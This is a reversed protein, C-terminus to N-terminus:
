DLVTGKSFTKVIPRRKLAIGYPPLELSDGPGVSISMEKTGTPEWGAPLWHDAPRVTYDGPPIGRFRYRGTQDTLGEAVRQGDKFLVIRIDGASAESPGAAGDHDADHFVRGSLRCSQVLAIPVSTEHGAEVQVFIPLNQSPVLGAPLSGLNLDLWYTAPPLAAFDFRGSRASIQQEGDVLVIVEPIRREGRDITGNRNADVFVTGSVGGQVPSWVIPVVDTGSWTLQARWRELELESDIGRLNGDWRISVGRFIQWSARPRVELDRRKSQGSAEADHWRSSASVGLSYSGGRSMWNLNGEVATTRTISEGDPLWEEDRSFRLATRITAVSGGLSMGCSLIGGSSGEIRNYARGTRGSAALTFRGIAHSAVLDINRRETKRLSGHDGEHDFAGGISLEVRPWGAPSGQTGARYWGTLLQPADNADSARGRSVNGSAWLALARRPSYRVYAVGGDRDRIRGEYKESGAYIRARVRLKDADYNALLQGASGDAIASDSESRSWAGELVVDLDADNALRATLCALGLKRNPLGSMTGFEREILDAGIWLSSGVRREAGITWSTHDDGRTGKGAFLRASWRETAYLLNAGRGSLARTAVNHFDTHVDGLSAKWQSGNVRLHLYRDSWKRDDNADGDRMFELDLQMTTAESVAGESSLRVSYGVCGDDTGEASLTTRAPLSRYRSRKSVPTQVLTSVRAAARAQQPGATLDRGEPTATLTLLHRSGHTAARPIHAVVNVDCAEGPLLTVHRPSLDTQWEPVSSLSLRYADSTNGVNTVRFVHPVRAGPKGTGGPSVPEVTVGRSVTVTIEQSSSAFAEGTPSAVFAVVEYPLDASAQPPIWVSFPITASESPGLLLDREASVPTWGPPPVLTVVVALRDRSTNEVEYWCTAFAGAESEAAAPAQLTVLSAPAGPAVAGLGFLASFLTIAWLCRLGAGDPTQMGPPAGEPEQTNGLHQIGAEQEKATM